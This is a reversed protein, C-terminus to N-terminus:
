CKEKRHFIFLAMQRRKSTLVMRSDGKMQVRTLHSVSFGRQGHSVRDAEDVPCGTRRDLGEYCKDFRQM